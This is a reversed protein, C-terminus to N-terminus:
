VRQRGAWTPVSQVQLFEVAVREGGKMVGPGEGLHGGFLGRRLISTRTDKSGDFAAWM